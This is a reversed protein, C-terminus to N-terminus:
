SNALERRSDSRILHEVIESRRVSLKGALEDLMALADPSLTVCVTRKKRDGLAARGPGPLGTGIRPGGTQGAPSSKANQATRSRRATM